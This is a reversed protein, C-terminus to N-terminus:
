TPNRATGSSLALMAAGRRVKLNAGFHSLLGHGLHFDALSAAPPDTGDPLVYRASVVGWDDPGTSVKCLDTARVANMPDADDVKLGTDCPADTEDIQKNCNEDKPTGGMPTPVEVANPNVNPDCDDCDGQAPTFGDGDVDDDMGGPTCNILPGDNSADLHGADLLLDGSSSSAEASSATSAGAGGSGVAGGAGGTFGHNVIGADCGVAIAVPLSLLPLVRLLFSTRM